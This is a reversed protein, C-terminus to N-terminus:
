NDPFVYRAFASNELSFSKGGFVLPDGMEFEEHLFKDKKFTADIPSNIVKINNESICNHRHNPCIPDPSPLDMMIKFDKSPALPITEKVDNESSSDDPLIDDSVTNLDAAGIATVSPQIIGMPNSCLPFSGNENPINDGLKGEVFALVPFHKDDAVFSQSTQCTKTRLSLANPLTTLVGHNNETSAREDKHRPSCRKNQVRRRRDVNQRSMMRCLSANNRVFSKHTYGGKNSGTLIREFGWVNVSDHYEINTVFPFSIRFTVLEYSRNWYSSHM